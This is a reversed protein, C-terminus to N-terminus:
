VRVQGPLLVLEAGVVHPRRGVGVTKGRLVRRGLDIGDFVEIRHKTLQDPGIDDLLDHGGGELGGAVPQPQDFVRHFGQVVRLSGLAHFLLFFEVAQHGLAQALESLPGLLQLALQLSVVIGHPELGPLEGVAADCVADM